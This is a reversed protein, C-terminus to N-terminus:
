RENIDRAGARYILMAGKIKNYSFKIYIRRPVHEPIKSKLCANEM